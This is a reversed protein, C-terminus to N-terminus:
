SDLSARLAAITVLVDKRSRASKLWRSLRAVTTMRAAGLGRERPTAGAVTIFGRIASGVSGATFSWPGSVPVGAARLGGCAVRM